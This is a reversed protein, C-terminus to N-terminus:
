LAPPLHVGAGGPVPAATTPHRNTQNPKTQNPNTLNTPEARCMMGDENDRCALRMTYARVDERRGWFALEGKTTLLTVHTFLMFVRSAPTHIATIVIRKPSRVAINRLLLCIIEGM